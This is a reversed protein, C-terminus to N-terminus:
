GCGVEDNDRDQCMCMIFKKQCTARDRSVKDRPRRGAACGRSHKELQLKCDSEEGRCRGPGETEDQEPVRYSRDRQLLLVTESGRGKRERVIREKRGQGDKGKGKSKPQVGIQM